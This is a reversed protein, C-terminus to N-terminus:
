GKEPLDEPDLVWVATDQMAPSEEGASSGPFDLLVTHCNKKCKSSGSFIEQPTQEFFPNGPLRALLDSEPVIPAPGQIEPDKKKAGM